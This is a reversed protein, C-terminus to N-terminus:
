LWANELQEFLKPHEAKLWETFALIAQWREVKRKAKEIPLGKIRMVAPGSVFAGETPSKYGFDTLDKGCLAKIGINSLYRPYFSDSGLGIYLVVFVDTKGIEALSKAIGYRLLESSNPDSLVRRLAKEAKKIKHEGLHFACPYAIGNIDPDSVGEIIRSVAKRETPFTDCLREFCYERVLKSQHKTGKLVWPLAAPGYAALKKSAEQAQRWEKANILKQYTSQVQLNTEAQHSAAVVTSGFLFFTFICSAFRNM